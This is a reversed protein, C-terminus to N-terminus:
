QNGGKPIVRAAPRAARHRWRLREFAAEAEPAAERVAAHNRKCFTEFQDFPMVLEVSLDPDGLSFEFEVFRDRRVGLVRVFSTLSTLGGANGSKGLRDAM